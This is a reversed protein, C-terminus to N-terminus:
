FSLAVVTENFKCVLFPFAVVIENFKVILIPIAVVMKQASGSSNSNCRGNQQIRFNFISLCGSNRQVKLGFFLSAFSPSSM